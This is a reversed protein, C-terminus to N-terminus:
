ELQLYIYLYIPCHFLVQIGLVFYDCQSYSLLVGEETAMYM